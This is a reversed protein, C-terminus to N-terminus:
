ENILASSFNIVAPDSRSPLRDCFGHGSQNLQKYPQCM